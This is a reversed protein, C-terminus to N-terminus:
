EYRLATIPDLAAAKRAPRIGFVVGVAVSVAASALFAPASVVYPVDYGNSRALIVLGLTALVALAGGAVGGITTLAVSELLFQRRIDESRAGLAKRLGVEKIRETVSVLMINMIGIGGVLLSIAALFGLFATIAGTAVNAQEIISTATHVIFDDKDPDTIGHWQRMLRTIEDAARPVMAEGDVKIDIESLAEGGAMRHSVLSMPAYIVTDLDFFAITGRPAAVGIVTVSVDKIRIREGVAGGSPFLEGAIDSGIVAVAAGARDEQENFFRGEAITTQPDVLPYQWSGGIVLSFIERERAVAYGQATKIGSVAVVYPFTDKDRLREVDRETLARSQLGGLQASVSAGREATGPATPQIAILDRGFTALENEVYARLGLGLSVMLTVAFVGIAIGLLSLSTRLKSRALNKMALAAVSRLKM